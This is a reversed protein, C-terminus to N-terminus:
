LDGRVFSGSLRLDNTQQLLDVMSLVLRFKMDPSCQDLETSLPYLVPDVFVSVLHSNTASDLLYVTMASLAEISLKSLESMMSEYKDM